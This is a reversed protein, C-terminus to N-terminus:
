RCPNYIIPSHSKRTTLCEYIHIAGNVQPSFPLMSIRKNQKIPRTHIRPYATTDGKCQINCDGNSVSDSNDNNANNKSQIRHKDESQSKDICTSTYHIYM